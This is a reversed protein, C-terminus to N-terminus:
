LVFQIVPCICSCWIYSSGSTPHQNFGRHQSILVCIMWYQTNTHTCMSFVSMGQINVTYMFAESEVLKYVIDNGDVLTTNTIPVGNEVYYTQANTLLVALLVLLIVAMIDCLLLLLTLKLIYLGIKRKAQKETEM